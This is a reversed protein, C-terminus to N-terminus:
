FGEAILNSLIKKGCFTVEFTTSWSSIFGSQMCHLILAVRRDQVVDKFTKKADDNTDSTKLIGSAPQEQRAKHHYRHCSFYSQSSIIQLPTRKIHIVPLEFWEINLSFLLAALVACNCNSDNKLM